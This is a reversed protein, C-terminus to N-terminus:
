SAGMSVSCLSVPDGGSEGEELVGSCVADMVTDTM